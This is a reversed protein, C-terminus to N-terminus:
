WLLISLLWARCRCSVLSRHSRATPNGHLSPERRSRMQRPWPTSEGQPRAPAAAPQPLAAGDCPLPLTRAGHCPRRHVGAAHPQHFRVAAPVQGGGGVHQVAGGSCPRSQRSLQKCPWFILAAAPFQQSRSRNRRSSLERSHCLRATDLVAVGGVEFRLDTLAAALWPQASDALVPFSRHEFTSGSLTIRVHQLWPSLMGLIRAQLPHLWTHLVSHTEAM